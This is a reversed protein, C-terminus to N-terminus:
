FFLFTNKRGLEKARTKVDETFSDPMKEIVESLTWSQAQMKETIEVNDLAQIAVQMDFPRSTDFIKDPPTGYMGGVEEMLIDWNSIEKSNVAMLIKLFQSKSVTYGKDKYKAVRLASVLPYSTTPNFHIYRQSNHKFFDEHFVWSEDKMNLAGMCVTFDFDKFIQQESEYFKHGIFQIKSEDKVFLAAKKTLVTLILSYSGLCYEVDKSNPELIEFMATSFAEKNPFYIDLDNIEAGSFVSTVAGGAIYCGLDSLMNWVEEPVLSKIKKLEKKHM